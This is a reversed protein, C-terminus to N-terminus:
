KLADKAKTALQAFAKEDSIALESLMKRNVEIGALKLGHMLRSYSLENMRAAANIRAIWLKRFDRKKQRRDRYAYQGSKIVQQKAVKFLAHKAGYYGKALKLVRKRRQRTVTGGKVRPM